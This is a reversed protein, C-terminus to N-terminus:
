GEKFERRIEPSILRKIIWAFLGSFTIGIVVSVGIMVKTMIDFQNGFDSPADSPMSSFSDMMFLPMMMGGLNWVIGLSMMAIFTVRAWNKRKLLGISSVLTLTCVVLFFFFFLRINEIMMKVFWPTPPGKGTDATASRMENLPFAFNIMVNQLVSILTTFGALVIFIWAVTTVFASPTQSPQALAASESTM